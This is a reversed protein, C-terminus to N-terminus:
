KEDSSPAGSGSRGSMSGNNIGYNNVSQDIIQIVRAMFERSSIGRSNLFDAIAGSMHRVLITCYRDVDAREYYSSAQDDAALERISTSAGYTSASVYEPLEDTEIRTAAAKAREWVTIPVTLQDALAARWPKRSPALNRYAPDIPNLVCCTWEIYLMRDDCGVHLFLSVVLDRDWSEVQFQQYYRMWETPQNAVETLQQIPLTQVPPRQPDPLVWGFRPHQPNDLMENAAVAVTHRIDLNRLRTNPSLSSSTRLKQYENHLHSYLETPLFRGISATGPAPHHPVPQGNESGEAEAPVLPIVFSKSMAVPGAGVFPRPGRFVVVNSENAHRAVRDIKDLYRATGLSRIRAEGPWTQRPQGGSLRAFSRTVIWWEILRDWLLTAFIASGLLLALGVGALSPVYHVLGLKTAVYIILAIPLYTPLLMLLASAASRGPRRRNLQVILAVVLWVIAPGTSVFLLLAFLVAVVLDRLRRRTHAAVAERLVTASDLGASPPLARLPRTLYEFVVRAAFIRDVHAAVALHRTTRDSAMINPTTPADAAWSARRAGSHTVTHEM